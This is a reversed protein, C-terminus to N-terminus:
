NLGYYDFGVINNYSRLVNITKHARKFYIYITREM